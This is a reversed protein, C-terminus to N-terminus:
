AQKLRRSPRLRAPVPAPGSRTSAHRVDPRCPTQARSASGSRSGGHWLRGRDPRGGETTMTPPPARPDQPRPCAAARLYSPGIVIILASSEGGHSPRIQRFVVQRAGRLLVPNRQPRGLEVGLLPISRISPERTDAISTAARLHQEFVSRAAREARQQNGGARVRDAQRNWAGVRARGSDANTRRCCLSRGFVCCAFLHHHDAALKMPRSTAAESLFRSMATSTTAGSRTGSSRTM